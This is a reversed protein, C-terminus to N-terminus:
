DRRGRPKRQAKKGKGKMARFDSGARGTARKKWDAGQQREMRDVARNAADANEQELAADAAAGTVSAGREWIDKRAFRELPPLKLAPFKRRAEAYRRSATALSLNLEEAADELKRKDLGVLRMIECCETRRKEGKWKKRWARIEARTGKAEALKARAEATDAAGRARAAELDVEAFLAAHAAGFGYSCDRAVGVAQRRIGQPIEAASEAGRMVERFRDQIEPFDVLADARHCTTPPATGTGTREDDLRGGLERLERADKGHLCWRWNSPPNGAWAWLGPPPGDPRTGDAVGALYRGMTDFLRLAAQLAELRGKLPMGEWTAARKM